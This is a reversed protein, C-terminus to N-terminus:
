EFLIRLLYQLVSLRHLDDELFAADPEKGASGAIVKEQGINVTRDAHRSLFGFLDEIEDADREVLIGDGIIRTAGHIGGADAETSGRDGGAAEFFLFTRADGDPHDLCKLVTVVCFFQRKDLLFDLLEAPFERNWRPEFLSRARRLIPAGANHRM